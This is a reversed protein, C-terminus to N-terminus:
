LSLAVNLFNKLFVPQYSETFEFHHQLLPIKHFCNSFINSHEIFAVTIYELLM